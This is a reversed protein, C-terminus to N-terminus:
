KRKAAEINEQVRLIARERPTLQHMSAGSNTLTKPASSQPTSAEAPEASLGLKKKLKDLKTLREYQKTLRDVLKDEVLKAAEEVDLIVGEEDFCRTILSVVEETQGESKITGFDPNSDVLLSVDNRIVGVATNYDQQDRQALAGKEPDLFGNLQSELSSIRDLLVQNPDKPAQNLQLEVLKDPTIGAESLVQLTESTLRDKTIYSAQERKWAEQAAKLDQQARRVQREKRALADIQPNSPESTVEPAKAPVEINNDPRMLGSPPPEISELNQPVTRATAPPSQPAPTNYKQLKAM